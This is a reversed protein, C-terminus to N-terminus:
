RWISNGATSTSTSRRTLKADGRLVETVIWPTQERPYPEGVRMPMSVVRSRGKSPKVVVIVNALGVVEALPKPQPVVVSAHAVATAIVLVVPPLCLPRM